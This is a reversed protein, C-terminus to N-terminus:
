ITPNLLHHVAASLLQTSASEAQTLKAELADCLSLLETVKTVIRKQEALPPVPIPMELISERSVNRMSESTGSAVSVYYQRAFGGNNFLNVYHKDVADPFRVRLVKDNLLLRPPVANVVVSRAVLEATNARSMLFDGSHIECNLRPEMHSPLTKNEDANFQGWTVASIKIVGWEDGVRPREECKPSWGAEIFLCLHGFRAWQWGQPLEFLEDRAKIASVPRQSPIEGAENRSIREREIDALAVNAAEDNPDQPVLQGQVALQLITQRLQPITTPTDFLQDFHNRLRHADDQIVQWRAQGPPENAKAGTTNEDFPTSATLGGRCALHRSTHPLVLRDLTAGVLRQRKERQAAQRAALEDCLGLLQDVKEVIRRQEALPPIPILTSNARVITLTHVTTGMSERHIEDIWYPSQMLLHLYHPYLGFCNKFILVSADKFYFRDTDRVVYPVGITGVGTIMLDNPEPVLGDKALRQFHAETIFLENDVHGSTALKVIERARLFPVGNTTWDKQHVRCSSGIIGLSGLRCWAWENPIQFPCANPTMPPLVAQKKRKTGAASKSRAIEIQKLLEGVPEDSPAQSVLKGQVALQRIMGKLKEVSNPADVFTAFHECFTEANM